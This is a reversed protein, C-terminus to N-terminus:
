LDSNQVKCKGKSLPCCHKPQIFKCVLISLLAGSVPAMIYIWLHSLHNSIIAPATSRAPNMSAGSVPGAFIAALLVTGGIAVSAFHIKMQPRQSVTLIVLMLLLTILVEVIFSQSVHSGPLTAGLTTNYPFLQSLLVSASIAGIFQAMMYPLVSRGNFHGAAWFAITVAPNLHAGSINGFRYVMLMVILGFTFAIILTSYPIFMIESLVIAATGFLVLMFTGIAEAIYKHFASKM